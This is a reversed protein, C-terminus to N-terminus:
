LIRQHEKHAYSTISLQELEVDDAITTFFLKLEFSTLFSNEFDFTFGITKCHEGIIPIGFITQNTDTIISSYYCDSHKIHVCFRNVSIRHSFTFRKHLRKRSCVISEIKYSGKFHDRDKTFSKLHKTMTYSEKFMNALMEPNNKCNEFLVSYESPLSRVIHCHNAINLSKHRCYSRLFSLVMEETACLQDSSLIQQIDSISWSYFKEAHNSLLEQANDLIVHRVFNEFFSCRFKRALSHYSLVNDVNVIQRIKNHLIDRLDEVLFYDGLVVFTQSLNILLDFTM